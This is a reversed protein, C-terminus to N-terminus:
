KSTRTPAAEHEMNPNLLLAARRVMEYDADDIPALGDAGYLDHLAKQGIDTQSVHMLGDRVAEVVDPRIGKRVCVADNPMPETRGIVRTATMVDPLSEQLRVRPDRDGDPVRDATTAGGDVKRDYIAQIVKSDSGAFTTESFFGQLDIGTGKFIAQPLMYGFGSMQDVYAFRKGRLGELTTIGSDTRVVIQGTSLPVGDRLGTLISEAGTSQHAQVYALPSLWAVDISTTAMGEIAASYSTPVLLKFRLGTEKELAKTLDQSAALV